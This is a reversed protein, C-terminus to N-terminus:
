NNNKFLADLELLYKHYDFITNNIVINTKCALMMYNAINNIDDVCISNEPTLYDFVNSFHNILVPTGCSISESLKTPFGAKVMRNNERLIVTWNSQKVIQIAKKHNVRGWFIVNNSIYDNWSYMCTFQEKTIGVINLVIENSKEVLSVANVIKDLKEKAASPSGAYTFSIRSDDKTVQVNWKEDDLDVTPPIIVTKTDNHYYEFLYKSIAIIGDMKKHVYRMRYFTDFSKIMKIFINKGFTNYWETVDALCKIKKKKCYKRINNLAMAPYNYAIVAYPNITKIMNISTKASILYDFNSERKYEFCKFGFYEKKQIESNNYKKLSNLFIVDYGIAKLGKGIGVVRQAAANEEPLQFGGIYLVTFKM